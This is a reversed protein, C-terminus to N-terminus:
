FPWLWDRTSRRSPLTSRTPAEEGPEDPDAATDSSDTDKVEVLDVAVVPEGADSEPGSEGASPENGLADGTESSAPEATESWFPWWWPDASDEPEFEDALAEEPTMADDDEGFPWAWRAFTRGWGTDDQEQPDIGAAAAMEQMQEAVDKRGALHEALKDTDAPAAPLVRTPVGDLPRGPRYEYLVFGRGVPSLIKRMGDDWRMFVDQGSMTWQGDLSRDLSTELGGFRALGIREFKKEGRRVLWDGRYFIRAVKRSSFAIGGADTEREAQYDAMWAAPVNAEITRQASVAESETEEIVQGSKIQRYNFGRETESLIAYDGSDWIIHLESGQKAWEGRQGDGDGDGITSAASRDPEVFLLDGAEGLKWIGFYGQAEERVSRVADARSPPKAWQGLIEQPLQQAPANYRTNGAANRFTATFGADTREIIHSSKDAWTITARSDTNTWTGRYVTRDANDGWFYSANGAKKLIIVIAGEDPTEFQWTGLFLDQSTQASSVQPALLLPLAILLWAARGISALPRLTGGYLTIM